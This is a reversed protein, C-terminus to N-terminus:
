RNITSRFARSSFPLPGTLRPRDAPRLQDSLLIEEFKEVACSPARYRELHGTRAYFPVRQADIAYDAGLESDM